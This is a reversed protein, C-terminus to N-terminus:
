KKVSEESAKGTILGRAYDAKSTPNVKGRNVDVAYGVPRGLVAVPVGTALSIATLVDRVNKGTVEKDKDVLNIAAKAVGFTSGELTSVAPSSSMKDDYPKDNAVNTLSWVAPGLVPVMAVAGKIQSGFFWEMFEDLYGDDDEDDWGGGLTRVIADAVIMPLAFGLLYKQFLMGKHGRWGLDRFIKTFETANLNAIMNFYGSFQLLTAMFPTGVEFASKDEATLSSQTMRVVADARHVAEAHAEANDYGSGLQELAQNYAGVWAVIDVQNQFATQLFYGHQNTWAQVKEFKTPNLLLQNLNDQIDFIQNKLRDEMFKSAEVVGQTVSNPSKMYMALAAKMNSKDVKVGTLFHGTFQQLANSLNGFMIAVGTRQRVTRWFNDISSNLGVESTIQRAARNLWPLLMGEVVESDIRSLNDAFDRSRIIKLVDKIAPQVHAFRIVDDIHKTMVRLDLSLPKNYEVRGKTFGLGTSPMSQRFDSELAEMKANKQADRVMDPDTKAPVYGGRYTGFPTVLPTAEVEKFYYGFMDHHAKQALPKIEENLDWVSQLFDFDAKTLHGEAIMRNILANWRSADLVGNQNISGWGRGVLLKKFNSENGMHLMAGLLEAKGSGGNEDGFTYGIEESADIKGKGLTLKAVMDVYQSVYKNRDIRYNDLAHRVPRWIYQTFAKGGASGDMSDAWYEVRRGIAKINLLRKMFKEKKTFPAQEGAVVEPIGIEELRGVLEGRIQEISVMRGEIMAENDRKSQFWLSNIADNLSRFEDLTMETYPKSGSAAELILPEIDAYFDPNYSRLTDIFDLPSKGKPGIGYYGLIARAANVLDMNRGKAIKEDSRFLKRFGDIAKDIEAKAEIAQAALQNNLLQQQKAKQAALSDGKKMAATTQKAARGEAISYERPNIDGVKKNTIIQKAAKKAAQLMLRVPATAKALFRLEVAVFRARAENHLAKEIEADVSKPDFMEGHEELMRQDTRAEIEEKIPKADVLSRVLADGSQFGFMGAVLDPSIGQEGLMGYKGYGLTTFDPAAALSTDSEPYLAKVEALSLKHGQTVKIPNGDADKTEGRKLFNIAMYVPDNNVEEEVQERVIKRQAATKKQMEKLLKSRANDLWKIQRLSAKTLDMVGAQDAEDAMAKYAQWQADDMGSEEQTQFMPVMDRIEQAQQIQKDSALMRDFVSRVEDNLIPLDKGFEQKYMANLEDVISTYIDRMWQALRDFVSELEVSPAKGEFFYIESAYAIAEQAPRREELSMTNWQEISDVGGFKILAELDAVIQAPANEQQAIRTYAEVVFHVTEHHLTSYDAEKTLITTLTSPAFGGRNTQNLLGTKASSETRSKEALSQPTARQNLVGSMQGIVKQVSARDESTLGLNKLENDTLSAISQVVRQTAAADLPQAANEQYGAIGREISNALRAQEVQQQNDDDFESSAAEANADVGGSYLSAFGSQLYREIIGERQEKGHKWEMTVLEPMGNAADFGTNSEAWYKVTDALQKSTLKLKSLPQTKGNETFGFASYLTPLFGQPFEASKVAYSSVETAGESIAKLMIAPEIIGNAGQENAVWTDLIVREGETKLLFFAQGDGLQFVKMTKDKIGKKLESLTYKGLVNKAPSNDIADLFEQPSVGGDKKADDSTKWNNAAFDAALRAQKASSINKQVIPGISDVLEQTVSVIPKSLEFARRPSAKDSNEAMWDQWLLEYNIPANMKGVVRGRIGVPFDPHPTTGETGLDVQPSEQDVELLIVGDGWRHGALSPERTAELIRAMPPAGLDLAQKSAMVELVRKRADFSIGDMYQHLAASDEFGVFNEIYQNTAIAKKDKAVAKRAKEIEKDTKAAALEAEAVALKEKSLAVAKAGTEKVLEGLAKVNKKTIRGDRNWAELTSIFAAAVTSNSQHMDADGMLVMMYNAGEKLKAAKQSTVGKGRNAWVINSLANTLRLPFFPGGLLPIALNIQSSDIGTYLAAAATRDAITPFINMGVLDQMTIIPIDKSDLLQDVQMVDKVEGGADAIEDELKLADEDFADETAVKGKGRQNLIEPSETPNQNFVSKVQNSNYVALNKHKGEKVYFGDFGLAKIADQTRTKEIEEWNGSALFNKAADGRPRGWTDTQKNMEAVVAAVHEPNQYDFPNTANVYVPMINPGSPMQEAIAKNFISRAKINTLRDGVRMEHELIEAKDPDNAFEERIRQAAVNMAAEVEQRSLIEDYHDVMWDKSMETYDDAFEPDPTTFIAGAQKARFQHINQATGHYMKLPKGEKDVIKTDKFFEKFATSEPQIEGRQNFMQDGEVMMGGEDKAIVNPFANYAEMPTMGLRAALNEYVKAQFFSQDRAVNAPYIGTAKIQDFMVQQVEKSSKIFGEDQQAAKVREEIQAELKKSEVEIYERAERRTMTEGEIRLDDIIQSSLETPAIVKMYDAVPIELERGTSLSEKIADEFAPAAKVLSEALGSQRLVDSSLYVNQVPSDESVQDIWSEFTEADRSRVENAAALNNLTELVQTKREVEEARSTRRKIHLAAEVISRVTGGVAAGVTGEEGAQGFDIEADRNTLAKRLTDHLINETFEQGGESATAVGIRALVAAVQNKVPVALPGLMKDLAWRETLATVAGGGLAAIDKYGQAAKDKEVKDYVTDVGQAWLNLGSVFGGTLIHTIAQGAVQGVGGTVKDIFTQQSAPVMIEDKAQDKLKKGVTVWDEGLMPGILSDATPKSPQIGTPGKQPEPLFMNAFGEITNRQAIELMRGVGSVSMGAGEEMSGGFMRFTREFQGMNQMQDHSIKSNDPNVLFNSTRPAEKWFKDAGGVDQLLKATKAESKFEPVAEISMDAARSLRKMEAFDNPNTDVADGLSTALATSRDQEKKLQSIYDDYASM